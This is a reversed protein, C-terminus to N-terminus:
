KEKVEKYRNKKKDRQYYCESHAIGLVKCMTRVDHAKRNNEIFKVKDEIKAYIHCDSKKTNRIRRKIEFKRKKTEENWSQKYKRRNRNKNKRIWKDM